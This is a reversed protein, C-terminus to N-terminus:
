RSGDTQTRQGRQVAKTAPRESISILCVRRFLGGLWRHDIPQRAHPGPVTAVPEAQISVGGRRSFAVSRAGILYSNDIRIVLFDQGTWIVIDDEDYEPSFGDSTRNEADRYPVLVAPQTLYHQSRPLLPTSSSFCDALM